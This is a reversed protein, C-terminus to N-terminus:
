VRITSEAKNNQSSSNEKYGSWDTPGKLTINFTVLCAKAYTGPAQGVDLEDRISKACDIRVFVDHASKLPLM